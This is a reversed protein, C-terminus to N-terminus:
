RFTRQAGGLWKPRWTQTFLRVGATATALLSTSAPAVSAFVGEPKLYKDCNAYLSDDM